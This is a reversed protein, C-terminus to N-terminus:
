SKYKKSIRGMRMKGMVDAFFILLFIWLIM